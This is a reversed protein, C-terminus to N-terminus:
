KLLRGCKHNEISVQCKSQTWVDCLSINTANHKFSHFFSKEKCSSALLKTSKSLYIELPRKNKSTTNSSKSLYFVQMSLLGCQEVQALGSRDLHWDHVSANGWTPNISVLM